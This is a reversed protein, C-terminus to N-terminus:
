LPSMQRLREVIGPLHEMLTDIEEGTTGRGFSFRLAGRADVTDIGMAKLVHSPELDESSCASGTSLAIGKTDLMMMASEGEIRPFSINVTNPLRKEPHGNLRVDPVEKQVREWFEDRLARLRPGEEEMERRAIEAAKGLGAIGPINETGARRGGEHGGGHMVPDVEAGERLFLAGMGKPGYIKHASLSLLDVGMEEVDIPIKGVAQVADTHFLIGRERTTRGIEAVPNLSGTENNATMVSVLVTEETIADRVAEPSVLGDGDVPLCTVAFGFREELYRCTHLVAHHEVATTIIHKGKERLAFAAGKIAANDSETGGSTFVVERPRCGILAAVQERGEELHKKPVRGYRHASSPNGFGGRFLPGMAELVEEDVPTTANYDLYIV